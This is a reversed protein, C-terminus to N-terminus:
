YSEIQSILDTIKMYIHPSLNLLTKRNGLFYAEFGNAFYEKLSTAGYPSVFLNVTLSRLLPYGVEQYLFSDFESSYDINMFDQRTIDIKQHKMIRELKSRKGIFELEINDDGYLDRGYQEEVAHAMEHVIDDVMDDVDQQMNTLYIAGDEYKANIDRDIMDDFYGIYVIDVTHILSYPVLKEIKELVQSLDINEPLPDKIFVKIKGDYFFHEKKMLNDKKIKDILREKFM